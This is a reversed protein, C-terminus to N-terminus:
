RVTRSRKGNGVWVDDPHAALISSPFVQCGECNAVKITVTTNAAAGSAPTSLGVSALLAAM